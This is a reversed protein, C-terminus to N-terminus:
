QSNKGCVHLVVEKLLRTEKTTMGPYLPLTVSRAYAEYSNPCANPKYGYKRRFYPQMHLAHNGITTEIGEERLLTTFKDRNVSKKLLIVYSQFIQKMDKFVAPTAFFANNGFAKNFELALKFRSEIIKNIKEMQSIGMVAAIESLRYNYGADYFLVKKNVGNSVIKGEPLISQKRRSNRVPNISKMGHNRMRRCFDAIKSNDTTIMGGEATTIIKRPHFSFCAADSLSGCMKNKYEAGLACAADEIVKLKKKGAIELIVQMNAPTGFQHVPMVAKTRSTIKRKLDDININFSNLDIDVLVAKAGCLEVTNATAPFTFDPVIVEDGTGIGLALLALHLAATGSSVAIAYKTGVYGAVIEEFKETLPGRTLWGSEVVKKLEEEIENFQLDPITLRIM